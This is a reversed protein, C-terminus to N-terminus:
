RRADRGRDRTRPKTARGCSGAPPCSHCDTGRHRRDKDRGIVRPPGRTGRDEDCRQQTRSSWTDLAVGVDLARDDIEDDRDGLRPSQVGAPVCLRGACLESEQQDTPRSRLADAIRGSPRRLRSASACGTCAGAVAGTCVCVRDGTCADLKRVQRARRVRSASARHGGQGTLLPLEERAVRM